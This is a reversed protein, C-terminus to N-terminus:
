RGCGPAPGVKNRGVHAPKDAWWFDTNRQRRFRDRGPLQSLQDYRALLKRATTILETRVAEPSIVAVEGGFGALRHAAAREEEFTLVVERLGDADVPGAAEAARKGADGFVHPFIRLATTTARVRVEVQPRSTVFAASWREWFAALDFGDPRVAAASLLRASTVRGARFVAPEGCGGAQDERQGATHERQGATHEHQVPDPMDPAPAGRCAPYKMIQLAIRSGAQPERGSYRIAVLYWTGAKNVLGLPGVERIKEPGRAELDGSDRRYGLLLRQGLRVAAALTRLHPVPESGHFWRPMDLHVLSAQRARGSGVGPGSGTNVQSVTGLGATTSVKRHAAALADALGLEAVAAPVGLLLLAEAEDASLGRLPFRYGEILRCGGGPGPEAMVPIGAANLASIDRYVTRVSVELEGALEHASMRGRAQLLLALSVLRDARV